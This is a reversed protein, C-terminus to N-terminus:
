KLSIFRWGFILMFCSFPTWIAWFPAILQREGLIMAANMIIYFAVLGFISCAYILFVPLIRTFRVCFPAPAIVALLCLWPLALKYYYTTLARSEKESIITNEKPGKAKLSTFSLEDAPTVTELLMEKNFQMDIFSLDKYSAELNLVGQGDRKLHEVFMGKPVNGALFLSKIRYIDDISKIWYANSFKEELPDYEHFLLSTGDEFVLHKVGLSNKYKPKENARIENIKRIKQLAYPLMFQTNFYIIATGLLGLFIFPRLLVKMRIGSALFAVLERHANLGCLTKISAILLAFPILVDIKGIFEYAYYLLIASVDFRVHNRHFSTSHSSYDLLAYIAYFGFLFLFFVKLVERIFYREWIKKGIM